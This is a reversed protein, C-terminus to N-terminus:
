PVSLTVSASPASTGCVNVARVSFTYTGPPAPASFARATLPVAGSVAGSVDLVYSTPTSGSPPLDWGLSVVNGTVDALLNAPASPAGSCTDPFTLTVPTSAPSSGFANLARVAFTYTGAPVGVFSFTDATGLPVTLSLAGSVDLVFSSIDGRTYSPQWALALSSGHALGLLGTPAAPPLPQAIFVRVENSPGSIGAGDVARVRVYYSGPPATFTFRPALAGTPLSVLTQGADVAGEFIWGAPTTGAAPPLWRLTVTTGVISAVALARPPQVTTPAGVTITATAMNGQGDVTSARYTFSTSGIFGAPPVYQLAGNPWLTLAGAGPPSVVVVTAVNGNALDNALVGPAPVDLPTGFPTVYQDDASVPPVGNVTITVRTAAGSHSGNSARYTFTVTGGTSGATFTFSGDAALAVTGRQPPTVLTATLPGGGQSSDNALVGPGPVNLTAGATVTYADSRSAPIGDPAPTGIRWLETGHVGDNGAFFIAGGVTALVPDRYFQQYGYCQGPCLDAVLQTGAPTGDTQWLEYGHLVDDTSYYALNGAVVPNSLAPRGLAIPAAGPTGDWASMTTPAVAILRGGVTFIPPWMYSGTAQFTPHVLATGAASGDSTYVLAGLGQAAFALQGQFAVFGLPDSSAPGPQLDTVLATGGPTGDSTWLEVGETPTYMAFFLRDGVAAFSTPWRHAWVGIAGDTFSAVSRTGAPTGDSVWIVATGDQHDVEFYLRDSAAAVFTPVGGFTARPVVATTGEPTGDSSWLHDTGFFLTRDGIPFFRRGEHDVAGSWLRSNTLRYTGACTADTRYPSSYDDTFFVIGTQPQRVPEGLPVSSACALPWETGATTGDSVGMEPGIVLRGNANSLSGIASSGIGHVHDVVMVPAPQAGALRAGAVAGAVLWAALRVRILRPFTTPM